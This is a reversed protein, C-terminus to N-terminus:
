RKNSRLKEEYYKKVEEKDGLIIPEEINNDFIAIGALQESMLDIIKEQRKKLEYLEINRRALEANEVNRVQIVKNGLLIEKEYKLLIKEAQLFIDQLQFFYRKIEEINCKELDKKHLKSIKEINKFALCQQWNNENFFRKLKRKKTFGLM